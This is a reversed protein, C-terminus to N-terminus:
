ETPESPQPRPDLEPHPGSTSEIRELAATIRRSTDRSRLSQVFMVIALLGGVFGVFGVSDGFAVHNHEYLHMGLAALSVTAHQVAIGATSGAVVILHVLYSLIALVILVRVILTVLEPSASVPVGDASQYASAEDTSVATNREGSFTRHDIGVQAALEVIRLGAFEALNASVQEALGTLSLKTLEAFEAGLKDAMGPGPINAIQALNAQVQEALGVFPMKTLEAFEAGLKDTFGTVPIKQLEAFEAALKDAMGSVPLNAFQALNAQVQEALGVFPMKTLEAIEGGLKDTFGAMPMEVLLELDALAQEVSERNPMRYYARRGGDASDTKQILGYSSLLRLGPRWEPHGTEKALEQL